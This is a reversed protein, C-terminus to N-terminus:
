ILVMVEKLSAYTNKFVASMDDKSKFAVATIGEELQPAFNPQGHYSMGYWYTPKLARKNSKTRYAHYTTALLPGLELGTIGCEEEVERLAAEDHSEGKEIKGKPLDWKEHRYIFLLEGQDNQVLGGAAPVWKFMSKFDQWLRELDNSFVVVEEQNEGNEMMDLVEELEEIGHYQILLKGSENKNFISPETALILPRNQIFVKYM